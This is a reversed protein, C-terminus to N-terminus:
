ASERWTPESRAARSRLVPIAEVLIISFFIIAAGLYGLPPLREGLFIAGSLAAFLSEGSLIIAANASPVHQQGIAQLTFAVGTSFVGSYVIFLWGGTIGDLTPQELAFAGATAIVATAYFNIVSITIPMGTEKVLAGLMSVQIGWFVACLVLEGDSLSLQDLRAGTL